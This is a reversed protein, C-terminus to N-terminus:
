QAADTPPELRKPSTTKKVAPTMNAPWRDSYDQDRTWKESGHVGERHGRIVNCKARNLGISKTRM